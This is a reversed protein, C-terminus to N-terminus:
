DATPSTSENRFASLIAKAGAQLILADIGCVILSAGENAYRQVHGPTAGFIGIPMQNRKASTMIRQIATHVNPHDPEGVHGLSAALDHPGILIADVGPERVISDINELAARTEIQIVIILSENAQALYEQAVHGFGHARGLGMGRSGSPPYHCWKVIQQVETVDSIQPVIIGPAGVDLYSKLPYEAFTPIRVLGTCTSGIAQLTAKIESIGFPGHEGDIFLWDFGVAALAEAVDPSPFTVMTGLLLERQQIRTKLNAVPM